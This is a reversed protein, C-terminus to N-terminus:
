RRGKCEIRRKGKVRGKRGDVGKEKKWQREELVSLFLCVCFFLHGASGNCRRTEREWGLRGDRTFSPRQHM